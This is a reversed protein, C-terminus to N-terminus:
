AAAGVVDATGAPAGATPVSSRLITLMVRLGERAVMATLQRIVRADFVHGAVLL